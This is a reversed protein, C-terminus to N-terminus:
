DDNLGGLGSCDPCEVTGLYHEWGAEYQVWFVVGCDVCQVLTEEM